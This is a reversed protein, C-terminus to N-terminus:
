NGQEIESYVIADPSIARAVYSCKTTEFPLNTFAPAEVALSLTLLAIVVCRLKYLRCVATNSVPQRIRQAALM